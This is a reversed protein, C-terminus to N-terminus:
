LNYDKNQNIFKIDKAVQTKLFKLNQELLQEPSLDNEDTQEIGKINSIQVEIKKSRIKDNIADEIIRPDYKATEKELLKKLNKIKEENEEYQDADLEINEDENIRKLKAIEESIDFLGDYPGKIKDLDRKLAYIKKLESKLSEIENNDRYKEGKRGEDVLEHTIQREDVLLRLKIQEKNMGRKVLDNFAQKAENRDEFIYKDDNIQKFYTTIESINGAASLLQKKLKNTSKSLAFNDALRSYRYDSIEDYVFNSKAASVIERFQEEQPLHDIKLVDQVYKKASQENKRIDYGETRDFYRGGPSLESFLSSYGKDMVVNINRNPDNYTSGLQNLDELNLYDM